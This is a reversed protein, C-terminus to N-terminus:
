QNATQRSDSRVERALSLAGICLLLFAYAALNDAVGRLPELISTLMIGGFMVLALIFTQKSPWRRWLAVIAYVVLAVQGAVVSFLALGAISAGVVVWLTSVENKKAPIQPQSVDPVTRHPASPVPKHASKTVYQAHLPGAPPRYAPRQAQVSDTQALRATSAASERVPRGASTNIGDIVGARQPRAAPRSAAPVPRPPQDPQVSAQRPKATVFPDVIQPKMPM